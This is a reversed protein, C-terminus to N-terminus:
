CRTFLSFAPIYTCLHSLTLRTHPSFLCISVFFLFLFSFLVAVHHLFQCSKSKIYLNLSPDSTIFHLDESAFDKIDTFSGTLSSCPPVDTILPLTLFFCLPVGLAYLFFFSSLFLSLSCILASLSFPFSSTISLSASLASNSLTGKVIGADKGFIDLPVDDPNDDGPLPFFLRFQWKGNNM